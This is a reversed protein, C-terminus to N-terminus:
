GPLGAFFVMRGSDTGDRRYSHFREPDCRTCDQSSVISARSLGISVAECTLAGRLDVRPDDRGGALWRETDAGAETARISEVVEEGVPYCCPGIAPGWYAMCDSPRAGYKDGLATVAATLIGGAVGRWGAHVLAIACVSPAYVLAPVCDAVSVTLLIGATKVLFGDRAEVRVTGPAVEDALFLDTGHVQSAEVVAHFHSGAWAELARQAPGAHTSGRGFDLERMTIGALLPQGGWRLELRPLPQGCRTEIPMGFGASADEVTM